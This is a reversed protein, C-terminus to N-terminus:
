GRGQLRRVRRHVRDLEHGRVPMGLADSTRRRPSSTGILAAVSTGAGRDAGGPHDGRPLCWTGYDHYDVM